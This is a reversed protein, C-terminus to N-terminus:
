RRPFRTRQLLLNSNKQIKDYREELHARIRENEVSKIYVWFSINLEEVISNILKEDSENQSKLFDIHSLLNLTIDAGEIYTGRLYGYKLGKDYAYKSLVINSASLLLITILLLTIIIKNSMNRWFELAPAKRRPFRTRWCGM